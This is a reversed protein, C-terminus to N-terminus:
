TVFARSVGPVIPTYGDTVQIITADPNHRRISFVMATPMAIDDGVHFFVFM